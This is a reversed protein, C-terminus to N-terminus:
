NPIILTQGPYILSPNSIKDKNANYIKMYDAGNGYYKKAINWLCDGSTVTYTRDPNKSPANSSVAREEQKTAIPKGVSTTPQKIKVTKTGYNRYQKLNVEVIVDFGNDVDEKITYDEISVKMNTDFLLSGNPTTRSIIFQFPDNDVKLSELIELYYEAQHFGGSYSAFPYRVNPLLINFSIETLGPSKLKNVEGENILNITTNQNNIKMDISSPAVPFQVGDFYISYGKNM